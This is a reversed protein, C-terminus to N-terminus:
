NVFHFKYFYISKKLSLKGKMLTQYWKRNLLHHIVFCILTVIGLIEHILSNTVPYAMLFLLLILMVIDLLMKNRLKMVVKLKTLYGGMVNKDHVFLHAKAKLIFIM